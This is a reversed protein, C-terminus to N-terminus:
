YKQVDPHDEKTNQFRLLTQIIPFFTTCRIPGLGYRCYWGLRNFRGSGVPRVAAARVRLGRVATRVVAAALRRQKGGDVASAVTKGALACRSEGGGRARATGIWQQGHATMSALGQKVEESGVRGGRSEEAGSRRSGGGYRWRGTTKVTFAPMSTQCQLHIQSCRLLRTPGQQEVAAPAGRHGLNRAMWTV